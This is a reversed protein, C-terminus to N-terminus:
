WLGPVPTPRGAEDLAVMVFRGRACLTRRDSLLDEAVQDVKVDMSRSCRRLIRGRLDVLQGQHAPAHFDIRDSAATVLTRRGHRTPAIFAAKDM